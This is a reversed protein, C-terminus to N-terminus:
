LNYQKKYKQYYDRLISYSYNNIQTKLHNWIQEDGNYIDEWNNKLTNYIILKEEESLNIAYTNNLKNIDTLSLQKIYNNIIMKYM